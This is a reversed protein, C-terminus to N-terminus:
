PETFVNIDLLAEQNPAGFISVAAENVASVRGDMEVVVIGISAQTM